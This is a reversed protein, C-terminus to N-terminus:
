SLCRVAAHVRTPAVLALPNKLLTAKRATWDRFKQCLGGTPHAFRKVPRAILIQNGEMQRKM